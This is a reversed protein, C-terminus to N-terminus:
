KSQGLTNKLITLLLKWKVSWYIKKFSIFIIGTKSGVLVNKDFSIVNTLVAIEGVLSVTDFRVIIIEMKGVLTNKNM